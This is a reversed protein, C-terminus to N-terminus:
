YFLQVLYLVGCLVVTYVLKDIPTKSDYWAKAKTILARLTDM